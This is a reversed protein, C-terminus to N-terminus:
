RHKVWYPQIKFFILDLHDLPQSPLKVARSSVRDQQLQVYGFSKVCHVPAELESTSSFSPNPSRQIVMMQPRREVAVVLTSTLPIAPPKMRLLRPSRCPSERGGRRKTAIISHKWKRTLSAACSPSKFGKAGRPRSCHTEIYASSMKTNKLGDSSSIPVM